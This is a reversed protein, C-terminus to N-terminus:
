SQGGESESPKIPSDSTIVNFAAILKEVEEPDSFNGKIELMRGDKTKVNIKISKESFRESLFKLIKSFSTGIALISATVATITIPDM